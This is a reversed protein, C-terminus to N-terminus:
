SAGRPQPEPIRGRWDYWGWVLATIVGLLGAVVGIARPSYYESALGAIAMSFMMTAWRLSELTAFVRGRFEDPVWRLLQTNNLVTTVAMGVRSLLIFFLAAAYSEMRSFAVYTAGHVLYSLAVARKYGAFDVRRGAVHGIAGGVLLGIGAFGWITGIGEAGRRFVQEGFLAFLIQAAGGGMAWGVSILGIGLVLPVSRMYRLGEAYDAWPRLMAGTREARFGGGEVRLRSIATASFVFSLANLIFAWEYGLRAASLGGVITGVTQTAWQTNQTLSNATHLEERSAITPLISARGSTYFPATFMLLASLLYLLWADHFRLTLLFALAVAARCLSSAIMIRKRDFRDLAVGALPGALAAPIARSLMVASVVLGSGTTELALSFVAVNNFYDGIESVVQGAWLRRYNRNRNLLETWDAM